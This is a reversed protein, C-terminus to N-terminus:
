NKESGDIELGTSEELFNHLTLMEDHGLKQGAYAVLFLSCFILVLIPVLWLVLGPKGLYLNSFGIGTVVVVAFAIVFYFFMFMTWVAERPGYLGSLLCGEPSEELTLSLQPSWYHQDEKPLFIKGYGAVHVWGQCPADTKELGSKIKEVLQETSFPTAIKFRPRVKYPPLHEDHDASM